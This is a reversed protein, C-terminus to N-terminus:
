RDRSVANSSAVGGTRLRLVAPLVFITSAWVMVLGVSMVFGLSRIGRHEATMMCAFGIVTTLSTLTVARGTGGALGAPAGGPQQRWRHVAHVGSDVGLGVILPLVITNAFNLAVGGVAMAGLLLAAGAIVPILACLVDLPNRFDWLLIVVIAISAFLAAREYAGLIVASSEHIQIAPGTAEPAAELVAAVFPGLRGAELPGGSRSPAPYVRLLLGGDQTSILERAAIPLSALTPTHMARLAAILEIIARREEDFATRVRQLSDNDLQAVADAAERLPVPGDAALSRASDRLTEVSGGDGPPEIVPLSQLVRRREAREAAAPFLIGAGGVSGVEPSSRLRETLVRAEEVDETVVVAHWSTQERELLREWRVSELRDPMLAMLDPEYRVGTALVGAVGLVVSAVALIVRPKRDALLGFWGAFPRHEGGSRHRLAREPHPLVELLAPLCSLVAIGCLIVGGAAIVGMEAVGAFDTLATAGFAAATTLTGTLIGAGVGRFTQAVAAPMHDHDPHVLELRAILHIATDVGLGLLIIAFVVSLVQLHGVALTVWGFSWCVGLLLAVLALLPTVVGRYVISMLLAILGLSLASALSADRMSQGTEDSELVQIGTVGAAGPAGGVEALAARVHGRLEEIRGDLSNVGGESGVLPVFGIAYRGSASRLLSQSPDELAFLAGSGGRGIAAARELLVRSQERQESSLTAWTAGMLRLTAAIDEAKLIPTMRRLTAAVEEVRETPELLLAEPSATAPDIGLLPVGFSGAEELRAGLSAFLRQAAAPGVTELDVVVVADNWRPYAQKFAAYRQQWPLSPDVLDSRDSKFELRTATLWISAAALAFGLVLVLWPRSTVANAWATLVSNRNIKQPM